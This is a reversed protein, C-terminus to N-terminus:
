VSEQVLRVTAGYAVVSEVDLGIEDDLFRVTIPTTDDWPTWSFTGASGKATDWQDLLDQATTADLQGPRYVLEYVTFRRGTAARNLVAGMEGSTSWGAYRATKRSSFSPTPMTM